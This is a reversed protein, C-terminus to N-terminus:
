HSRQTRSPYIRRVIQFWVYLLTILGCLGFWQFAYGQHKEVGTTAVPWQRLLGETPDGTQVLTLTLLPLGTEKRFAALDLNQRILGQDLGAFAYLQSPQEALRGAVTVISPPTNIAPLASRDVFNRPVWGRQVLLVAASDTLQLPTLVYFGPKGNMQRNDLFVTHAALWQGQLVASRHTLPSKHAMNVALEANNFPPLQQQAQMAAQLALKQAGRDLQWFGLSATLGAGLLAALTLLWFRLGTAAQASRSATLAQDAVNM